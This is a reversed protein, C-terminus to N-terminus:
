RYFYFPINNDMQYINYYAHSKAAYRNVTKSFNHLKLVGKIDSCLLAVETLAIKGEGMKRYRACVHVYCVYM